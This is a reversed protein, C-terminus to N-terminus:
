TQVINLKAPDITPALAFIALIVLSSMNALFFRSDEFLAAVHLLWCTKARSKSETFGLNKESIHSWLPILFQDNEVSGALRWNHISKKTRLKQDIGLGSAFYWGVPSAHSQSQAMNVHTWRSFLATVRLGYM